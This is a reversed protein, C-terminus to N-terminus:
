AKITEIIDLKLAEAYEKKAKRKTAEVAKTFFKTPRIGKKKINVSVAYALSKLNDASRVTKKIQQNKPENTSRRTTPTYKSVVSRKRLWKLIATAM